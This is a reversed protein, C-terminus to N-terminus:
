DPAHAPDAVAWGSRDRATGRRSQVILRATDAWTLRLVAEPADPRTPDAPLLEAVVAAGEIGAVARSVKMGGHRFMLHADRVALRAANALWQPGHLLAAYIAKGRGRPLEHELHVFLSRCLVDVPLPWAPPEIGDARDAARGALLDACAKDLAKNARGAHGFCLCVALVLCRADACGDSADARAEALIADADLVEPAAPIPTRAASM